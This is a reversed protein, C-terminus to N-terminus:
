QRATHPAGAPAAGHPRLGAPLRSGPRRRALRWALPLRRLKQGRGLAARRSFVDYGHREIADLVGSRLAIVTAAALRSGDGAVSCLGDAAERYLHRAREVQFRMLNRFAENVVGATLERESYRFAALDELPLYVRGQAVDAKLDRLVNTLVVARGAAAAPAAADSSTVGLVAVAATAAASGAHRCYRELSSWTAYRVVCRNMRHAEALDLFCQRPVQYRRAAVSFAHLVHHEQSRGAVAPLELRGDYLDNLRDRFLALRQDIANPSCCGGAGGAAASRGIPAVSLPRHRLAAGGTPEDGESVNMAEGIMHCFAYLAHVADRKAPPLFATAFYFDGGHRRCIERAARFAPADAPDASDPRRRPM